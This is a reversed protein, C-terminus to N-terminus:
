HLTVNLESYAINLDTGHGFAEDQTRRFSTFKIAHALTPARPDLLRPTRFYGPM